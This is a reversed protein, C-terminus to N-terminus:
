SEQETYRVKLEGERDTGYHGELPRVSEEVVEGAPLIAGREVYYRTMLPKRSLGLGRISDAMVHDGLELFSGKSGLATRFVARHPITTRILRGDLVSYTIMPKSDRRVFGGRAVRLTLIHAGEEGLRCQQFEPTVTFAMDAVFKTYGWLQRGGDRALTGTVPLHLVVMGFGPYGAELLAPVVGIPPRKGYVVLPAVALEGYPGITTEIYNFAFIAVLARGGPLQVPHLRDSPLAGRVKAADATFFLGFADDRFYLIPLEATESGVAVETGPRASAFFSSM